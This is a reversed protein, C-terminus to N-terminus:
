QCSLGGPLTRDKKLVFARDKRKLCPCFDCYNTIESKLWSVLSGTGGHDIGRFHLRDILQDPPLSIQFDFRHTM